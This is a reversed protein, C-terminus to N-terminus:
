CRLSTLESSGGPGAPVVSTVVSPYGPVRVDSAGGTSTGGGIAGPVVEEGLLEVLEESSESSNGGGGSVVESDGRGVPVGVSDGVGGCGVVGGVM